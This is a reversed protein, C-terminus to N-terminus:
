FISIILFLLKIPLLLLIEMKVKLTTFEMKGLTECNQLVLMLGSFGEPCAVAGPGTLNTNKIEIIKGKHSFSGNQMGGGYYFENKNQRLFERSCDAGLEIPSSQMM